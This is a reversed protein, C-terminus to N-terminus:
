NNKRGFLSFHVYRKPHEKLDIILKDANEMTSNLNDYLGTDHMLLGLTGKKSNLAETMQQVNTLTQEVKSMTAAVDIDNLKKTLEETNELIGNVNGLMQPMQRNLSATLQQLDQSTSNLNATLGDVNHLTNALAPDALLKNISTLISDLKPLMKEVQPLMDAAKSMAGSQKGGEITDGLALQELPNPGLILDL